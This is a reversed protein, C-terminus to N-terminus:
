FDVNTESFKSSTILYTFLVIHIFLYFTYYM